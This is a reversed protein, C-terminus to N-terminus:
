GARRACAAVPPAYGMPPAGRLPIYWRGDPGPVAERYHECPRYSGCAGIFLAFGYEDVHGDLCTSPFTHVEGRDRRWCSVDVPDCSVRRTPDCALKV